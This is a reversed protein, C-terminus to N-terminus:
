PEIELIQEIVKAISQIHIDPIKNYDVKGFIWKDGRNHTFANPYSKYILDMIALAENLSVSVEHKTNWHGHADFTTKEQKIYRM